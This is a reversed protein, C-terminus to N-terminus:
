QKDEANIVEAGKLIIAKLTYGKDKTQASYVKWYEEEDLRFQIPIYKKPSKNATKM